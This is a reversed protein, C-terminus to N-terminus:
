EHKKGGKHFLLTLMFTTIFGILISIGIMILNTFGGAPDMFLPLSPLGGVFGYAKVSFIGAVLSGACGGLCVSLLTKKDRLTIGFLAPETVGFVASLAITTADAKKQKDKELFATAAAAGGEAMNGVFGAVMLLTDFGVTAFATMVLPILSYHMGTFVMIPYILAIIAPALWGASASIATIFTSLYNGLISGIPGLVLLTALVGTLLTIMPVLFGCLLDPIMRQLGKEIYSMLVVGLIVPFVTSNYTVAQIGLGFVSLGEVGNIASYCLVAGLGMGIFPNMKMKAASAYGAFVPLFYFIAAQISSFVVYTPDQASVIEFSSLIALIASIMGAAILVPIFMVFTGSLVDFIANVVGKIGKKTDDKQIEKLKAQEQALKILKEFEEYVHSVSNGIILQYQGGKDSIGMIGDIKKVREDDVISRDALNLRLRTVCHTAATINERGGVAALIEIAMVEYNM